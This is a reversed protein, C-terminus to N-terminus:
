LSDSRMEERVLTNRACEFLLYLEDHASQEHFAGNQSTLNENYRSMHKQSFIFSVVYVYVVAVSLTKALVSVM